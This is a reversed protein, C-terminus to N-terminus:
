GTGRVYFSKVGDVVYKAEESTLEPYIPLSIVERTAQRAMPVKAEGFKEQVFPEDCLPQRYHVMTAVGHEKLWQALGDRDRARIVFKHWTHNSGPRIKPLEVEVVGGLGECYIGAIQEREQNWTEFLSLKFSLIDAMASSLQSNYGLRKYQGTVPDRGHYRLQRVTQAIQEDDTLLMGASGFSGVNKTPDFSLCSTHGLSGGPREGDRSGLAQAADEILM